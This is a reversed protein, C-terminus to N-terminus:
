RQVLHGYKGKTYGKDPRTGFGSARNGELTKGITEMSRNLRRAKGCDEIAELVRKEGYQEVAKKLESLEEDTYTGVCKKFQSWVKIPLLKKKGEQPFTTTEESKSVVEEKTKLKLETRPNGSSQRGEGLKLQKKLNEPPDPFKSPERDRIKNVKDWQWLWFFRVKEDGWVVLDNREREVEAMAKLIRKRTMREDFLFIDRKLEEPTWYGKGWRDAAEAWLGLYLVQADRSMQAFGQERFVWGDVMKRAM